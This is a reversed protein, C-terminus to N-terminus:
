EFVVVWVTRGDRSAYGIGCQTADALIARRQDVRNSWSAVAEAPNRPGRATAQGGKHDVRDSGWRDVWTTVYRCGSSTCVQQVVAVRTPKAKVRSWAHRHAVATMEADIVVAPRGHKARLANVQNLTELITPHEETGAQAFGSVMLLVIGAIVTRLKM